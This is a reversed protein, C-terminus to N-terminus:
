PTGWQKPVAIMVACSITDPATEASTDGGPVLEDLFGTTQTKYM